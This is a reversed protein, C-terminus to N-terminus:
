EENPDIILLGEDAMKLATAVISEQAARIQTKRATTIELEERLDQAARSSLNKLFRERLDSRAGKLAFILDARDVSRLLAQIGRDDISILDDFVKMMRQLRDALEEQQERVRNLVPINLDSSMKGLAKATPEVGGMALPDDRDELARRIASEVEDAYEGSVRQTKAMRLTLDFQQDETFRAMVRSANEPGMRLLAVAQVQPHEGELVAAVAAPPKSRIFQIFDDDVRRRISSSVRIRREDEVLEPLVSRVYDKGTAPMFSVTRLETLFTRVVQEIVAEEVNQVNAIAVGLKQIEEDSLHRLLERAAERELYMVLIAARELGTLDARPNNANAAAPPM